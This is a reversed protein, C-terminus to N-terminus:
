AKDTATWTRLCRPYSLKDNIVAGVVKQRFEPVGRKPHLEYGNPANLAGLRM